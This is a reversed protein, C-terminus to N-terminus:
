GLPGSTTEVGPLKKREPHGQLRSGFKRLTKLEELPFYGVRAMAEYRVPCIHGNSLILRDREEWGPNKPDHNMVAFYLACFVDAMGLPGASHGSGAKVLMKIIDQRIENAKKELEPITYEKKM